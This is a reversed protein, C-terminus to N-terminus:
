GPGIRNFAPLEETSDEKEKKLNSNEQSKQTLGPISQLQAVM